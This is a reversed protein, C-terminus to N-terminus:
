AEENMVACYRKMHDDLSYGPRKVYTARAANQQDLTMTAPTM